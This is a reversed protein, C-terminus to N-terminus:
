LDEIKPTEKLMSISNTKKKIAFGPTIKDSKENKQKLKAGITQQLTDTMTDINEM